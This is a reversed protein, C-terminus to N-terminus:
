PSGAAAATAQCAERIWDTLAQQASRAGGERYLVYVPRRPLSVGPPEFRAVAGSQIAPVAVSAPLFAAGVGLRALQEAVQMYEVDAVVRFRGTAEIQPWLTSWPPVQDFTNRILPVAGGPPAALLDPAAIGMVEEEYVVRYRLDPHPLRATTLALEVAQDLVLEFLEDSPATRVRLRLGPQHRALAALVGPLLTFSVTPTAGVAIEGTGAHRAVARCGEQLVGLAREAFALFAQGEDSLRVARPSRVVLQSGVEDELARLRRSVCSQTVQLSEAARRFSKSRAVECFTRLGEVDVYPEGKGRPATAFATARLM